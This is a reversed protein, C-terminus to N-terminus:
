THIADALLAEGHQDVFWLIMQLWTHLTFEEERKGLREWVAIEDNGRM